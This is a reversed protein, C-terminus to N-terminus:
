VIQRFIPACDCKIYNNRIILYSHLLLNDLQYRVQVKSRIYLSDLIIKLIKQIIVSIWVKLM